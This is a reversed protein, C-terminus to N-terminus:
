RPSKASSNGLCEVIAELDGETLDASMPLSLVKEAAEDAMPTCDGCCYQAYPPQKTM